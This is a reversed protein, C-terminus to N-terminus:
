INQSQFDNLYPADKPDMHGILMLQNKNFGFSSSFCAGPDDGVISYLLTHASMCCTLKIM